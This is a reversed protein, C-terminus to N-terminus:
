SFLDGGKTEMEMGGDSDMDDDAKQFSGNKNAIESFESEMNGM